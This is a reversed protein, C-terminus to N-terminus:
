IELAKESAFLPLCKLNMLPNNITPVGYKIPKSNNNDEGSKQWSKQLPIKISFMIRNEIIKQKLSAITM